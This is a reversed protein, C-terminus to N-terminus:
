KYVDRRISKLIPLQKRVKDVKGLDIDTIMMDEYYGLQKEIDGWPNVVLSHGYMKYKAEDDRAPGAGILYIQNDIARAKFLTDWHAPGTTMNFAAPVFVAKAGKDSMSRFLEPFRIDFCVALGMKGFETDFTTIEDGASLADAERFTKGMGLNIEFLHVKRHKAIKVGNRDYVYSTNFIQNGAKEPVTGAVLYINNEKAIKSLFVDIYGGEEEAYIHFKEVDYPCCFMEPLVVFDVDLTKIKESLHRLTENSDNIVKNQIIAVRM